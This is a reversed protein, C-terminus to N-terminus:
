LSLLAKMIFINNDDMVLIAGRIQGFVPITEKMNTMHFCTLEAKVHLHVM